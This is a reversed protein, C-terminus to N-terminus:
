HRRMFKCNRTSKTVKLINVNGDSKIKRLDTSSRIVIIKSSTHYVLNQSAPGKNIGQRMREWGVTLM